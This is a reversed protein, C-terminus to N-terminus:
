WLHHYHQDFHAIKLLFIWKNPFHCAAIIHCIFVYLCASGRTCQVSYLTYHITYLTCQVAICGMIHVKYTISLVTYLTCQVIYSTCQVSTLTRHVIYVTCQVSYLTHHVHHQCLLECVPTSHYNFKTLFVNIKIM